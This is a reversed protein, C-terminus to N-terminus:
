EKFLPLNGNVQALLAQDISNLISKLDIDHRGRMERFSMHIYRQPIRENLLFNFRAKFADYEGRDM